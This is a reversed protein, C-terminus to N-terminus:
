PECEDGVGNDDTDIQDPNFVDPCNDATDIILDDDEDGTKEVSIELQNVLRGGSGYVVLNGTYTGCGILYRIMMRKVGESNTTTAYGPDGAESVLEDNADVVGPLNGTDAYLAMYSELNPATNNEAFALTMFLDTEGLPSGDARDAAIVVLTDRYSCAPPIPGSSYSLEAPNIRLESGNEAADGDGQCAGLFSTSIIFTVLALNQKIQM